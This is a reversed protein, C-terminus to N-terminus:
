GGSIPGTYDKNEGGSILVLTIEIRAGQVGQLHPVAMRNTIFKSNATGEITILTTNFEKATELDKTVCIEVGRNAEQVRIDTQELSM